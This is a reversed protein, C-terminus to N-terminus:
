QVQKFPVVVARFVVDDGMNSAMISVEYFTSPEIDAIAGNAWYITPPLTITAGNNSSKFVLHYEDFVGRLEGFDVITINTIENIAIYHTGSIMPGVESDNSFTISEGDLQETDRYSVQDVDGSFDEYAVNRLSVSDITAYLEAIEDSTLYESLDVQGCDYFENHTWIKKADKIFVISTSLINGASLQANFNDLTQFHILKKNIAM